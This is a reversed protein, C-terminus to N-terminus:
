RERSDRVNGRSIVKSRSVHTLVNNRTWLRTSSLDTNSYDRNAHYSGTSTRTRKQKTARALFACAYSRAHFRSFALTSSEAFM